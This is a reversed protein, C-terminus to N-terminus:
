VGTKRRKRTFTHPLYRCERRLMGFAILDEGDEGAERMIGERTWGFNENFEVAERNNVSVLSNIRPYNLQEFPYAFATLIFEKTMWHKSGDSVVHVWCGTTTFSDYVVVARIGSEDRIGIAKADYKYRASGHAEAWAILEDAPQFIVEKM